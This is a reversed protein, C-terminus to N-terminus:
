EIYLDPIQSNISTGPRAGCYTCKNDSGYVCMSLIMNGVDDVSYGYCEACFLRHRSNGNVTDYCQYTFNHNHLSTGLIVNVGFLDNDSPLEANRSDIGFMINDRNSANYLDVLGIVHGFEHALTVGDVFYSNNLNIAIEWSDVHGNQDATRIAIANADVAHEILNKYDYFDKATVIGM